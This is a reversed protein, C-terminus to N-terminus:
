EHQILLRQQLLDNGNQIQLLYIGNAFNHLDLKWEVIGLPILEKVMLQGATNWIMLIQNEMLPKAFYLRASYKAPNPTLTFISRDEPSQTDVIPFQLTDSWAQCHYYNKVWVQYTGPLAPFIPNNSLGLPQGNLYWQYTIGFPAYLMGASYIIPGSPIPRLIITASNSTPEECGEPSTWSAHYTGSQTAWISSTTDLTNWEFTGNNPTLSLLVSDGACIELNGSPNIIPIPPFRIIITDTDVCGNSDTVTVRYQGPQTILGIPNSPIFPVWFYNNFNPGPTLTLTDGRCITTDNGLFIQPRAVLNPSFTATDACQGNDMILSLVNQGTNNWVVNVQPTNQGSQITGGIISWAYSASGHQFGANYIRPTSDCALAPGVISVASLSNVIITSSDMCGSGMVVLKVSGATLGSPWAVWISDNGQGSLLTGNTVSWQFAIGASDPAHYLLTDANMCLLRDGYIRARAPIGPLITVPKIDTTYCGSTAGRQIHKVFGLGPPGGWRVFFTDPFYGSYPLPYVCPNTFHGPSGGTVLWSTTIQTHAGAATCYASSTYRTRCSDGYVVSPGSIFANQPKEAISICHGPPNFIYDACGTFNNTVRVNLHANCPLPNPAGWAIQVSPGIPPSNFGGNSSKSWEYTHAGQPNAIQYNSYTGSNYDSECAWSPSSYMGPGSVANPSYQPAIKVVTCKGQVSNALAYNYTCGQGDNVIVNVWRDCATNSGSTWYINVNPTGQGSVVSGGASTSWTYTWNPNANTAQYSFTSTSGVSVCNMPTNIGM